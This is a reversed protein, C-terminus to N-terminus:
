SNPGASIKIVFGLFVVAVVVYIVLLFVYFIPSGLPNPKNASLQMLLSTIMASTLPNYHTRFGVDFVEQSTSKQIIPLWIRYNAQEIPNHEQKQPEFENEKYLGEGEMYVDVPSVYIGLQEQRASSQTEVVVCFKHGMSDDIPSFTFPYPEKEVIDSIKTSIVEINEATQCSNRKLYFIVDGEINGQNKFFLDIKYLGPYKSIFGQAIQANGILPYIKTTYHSSYYSSKFGTIRGFLLQNVLIGVLVLLALIFFYWNRPPIKRRNAM